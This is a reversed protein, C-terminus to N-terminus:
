YSACLVALFTSVDFALVDCKELSYLEFVNRDVSDYLHISRLEKHHARLTFEGLFSFNNQLTDFRSLVPQPQSM